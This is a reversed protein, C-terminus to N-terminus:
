AKREKSIFEKFGYFFPIPDTWGKYFKGAYCIIFKNDTLMHQINQLIYNSQKFDNPDFGLYPIVEIKDRISNDYEYSFYTLDIQLGKGIM